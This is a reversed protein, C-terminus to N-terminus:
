YFISQNHNPFIQLEYQGYFTLLLEVLFYIVQCFNYLMQLILNLYTDFLNGQKESKLDRPEDVNEIIQFPLNVNTTDYSKGKWLIEIENRNRDKFLRFRYEEPLPQNNKILEVIDRKESDSLDMKRRKKM